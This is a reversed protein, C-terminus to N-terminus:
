RNAALAQDIAQQVLVESKTFDGSRHAALAEDIADQVLVQSTTFDGSRNAALAEDIADEVLVQAGTYNSGTVGHQDGDDRYRAVGLAAVAAVAVVGAPILWGHRRSRPSDDLDHAVTTTPDQHITM